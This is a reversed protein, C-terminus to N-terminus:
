PSDGGWARPELHREAGDYLATKIYLLRGQRGNPYDIQFLACYRGQPGLEPLGIQWTSLQVARWCSPASM